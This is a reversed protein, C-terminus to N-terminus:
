RDWDPPLVNGDNPLCAKNWTDSSISASVARVSADGMVVMMANAHPTAPDTAVCATAYPTPVNQFAAKGPRTMFTQKVYSARSWPHYSLIPSPAANIGETYGWASGQNKGCVAYAHTFLIITSTGDALRSFSSGRDLWNMTGASLMMGGTLSEDKLPAFVQANAAYSAGGLTGGNQIGNTMSPDNPCTYSPVAHNQSANAKPDYSAPSGIAMKKYLNDQEIYPLLFVQTSGWISPFKLSGGYLPPLRKFTSEFNHCALGIQKLNNTCQTRAAAERVKQVAPLLLALLIAIIALVVLLEIMGFGRRGFRDQSVTAMRCGKGVVSSLISVFATWEELLSTYSTRTLFM